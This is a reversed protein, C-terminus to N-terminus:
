RGDRACLRGRALDHPHLRGADRAPLGRLHRDMSVAVPSSGRVETFIQSVSAELFARYKFGATYGRLGRLLITVGTAPRTLETGAPM